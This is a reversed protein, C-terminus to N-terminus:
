LRLQVLSNREWAGRCGGVVGRCVASVKAPSISFLINPLHVQWNRGRDEGDRDGDLFVKM